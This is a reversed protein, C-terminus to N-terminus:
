LVPLPANVSSLADASDTVPSPRAGPRSDNAQRGRRNYKKYGSQGSSGHREEDDASHGLLELLGDGTFLSSGDPQVQRSDNALVM